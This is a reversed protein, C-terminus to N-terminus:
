SSISIQANLNGTLSTLYVHVEVEGFFNLDESFGHAAEDILLQDRQLAFIAVVAFPRHRIM